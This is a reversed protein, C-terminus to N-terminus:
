TRLAEMAQSVYFGSKVRAVPRAHWGRLEPMSHLTGALGAPSVPVISPARDSGPLLRGVAHMVSLPVTRPAITFAIRQGTRAALGALARGADAAPYHILSDMAVVGDFSGLAPDLMDGSRFDIRGALELQDAMAAAHEVMRQSLDIAVVDAGRRALEVSMQGAGCGADLVRWGTLDAPFRSLLTQRMRDRGARVTARIGSVKETGTLRIWNELAKRDFYDRIEARRKVYAAGSAM